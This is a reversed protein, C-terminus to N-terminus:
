RILRPEPEPWGLSVGADQEATRTELHLDDFRVGRLVSARVFVFFRSHSTSNSTSRFLAGVLPLSGLVPVQSAGRSETEIELGGLVVAHGDPVIARSGLRNEQRPPPLTPDAPDGVFTSLSVEIDLVLRDGDTISPTVQVSTGADLTGGFSTTAITDGANISSYPTQLVSDLNATENNTVLVKPITLSRGENLTELARVLLSFSGPDLLVGEFGPGGGLPPLGSGSPSSLGAGFVSSLRGVYRGADGVKSLEVALDQAQSDSLSVVLTEVLVQTMPEDLSAIMEGLEDLTRRRGIALIRNTAKDQTLHINEQEHRYVVRGGVGGQQAPPALTQQAADSPEPATSPTEQPSESGSASNSGNQANAGQTLQPVGDEVLLQELLGLIEEVSRNHVSFSRIERESDGPVSKLREMAEEVAQHQSPTATILISRTLPDEVLRWGPHPDGSRPSGPITMELLRATESLGFRAPQYARTAVLEERDVEAVIEEWRAISSEPAVILVSSGLEHALVTGEPAYPSNEGIAAKVRDVLGVIAQPSLHQPAYKEVLIPEPPGELLELISLADNVQARLGGLLLQSSGELAQLRSAPGDLVHQLVETAVNPRAQRLPVLVKVYGPSIGDPLPTTLLRSLSFAQELSVVAFGEEDPSQVTTFGREALHRNAITWLGDGSVGSGTRITVSQDLDSREYTVPVDLVHALFDLLDTLPVEEQGVFLTAEAQENDEQAASSSAGEVPERQQAAM